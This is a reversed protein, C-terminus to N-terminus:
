CVFTRKEGKEVVDDGSYYHSSERGQLEAAGEIYGAQQSSVM